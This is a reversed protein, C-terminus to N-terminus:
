SVKMLWAARKAEREAKREEPSITGDKNTDAADFRDLAKKVADAIVIGKGDGSMMNGSMMDDGDIMVMRTRRERPPSDDATTQKPSKPTPGGDAKRIAHREIHVVRGEPWPEGGPGGFRKLRPMDLLSREKMSEEFEARSISGDKNTDIATFREETQAKMRTEAFAKMEAPTVTGDKDADFRTLRERVNAEVDARTQAPPAPPPAPQAFVPLTIAAATSVALIHWFKM